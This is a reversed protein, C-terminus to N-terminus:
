DDLDEGTDELLGGFFREFWIIAGLFVIVVAGAIALVM